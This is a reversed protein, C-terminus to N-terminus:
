FCRVSASRILVWLMHKQPSILFINLVNRNFFMSYRYSHFTFWRNKSNQWKSDGKTYLSLCVFQRMCFPFKLGKNIGKMWSNQLPSNWRQIKAHGDSSVPCQDFFLFLLTFLTSGCSIAWKSCDWRFRCQKCHYRNTTQLASVSLTTGM